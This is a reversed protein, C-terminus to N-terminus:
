SYNLYNPLEVENLEVDDVDAFREGVDEIANM